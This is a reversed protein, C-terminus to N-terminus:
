EKRLRDLRLRDREDSVRRVALWTAGLAGLGAGGALLFLVLIQYKAAEFPDMGALIQGTMMGPLTIIGAASMQNIIPILGSRLASRQMSRFARGRSAGLALQAEIAARERVIATNFANLSISVGNMVSGLVIGALPILVQPAFWPDPRLAALGFATVFVTALTTIGAGIGIGWAGALRRQQRSVIEYTAAALMALLVAAVPLPSSLDFVAKLVLGVLLLQVVVRVGAVLLDRAIRLNLLLSLVANLVVLCAGIALDWYGVLPPNM